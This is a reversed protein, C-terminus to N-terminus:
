ASALLLRPPMVNRGLKKLGADIGFEQLVIIFKMIKTEVTKMM